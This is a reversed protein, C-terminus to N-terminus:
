LRVLRPTGAELVAALQGQFRPMVYRAFMEYSRHTAATNAWEHMLALIGGIGGSREQIEEIKAILEDPAGAIMTGSEVAEEVTTGTPGFALAARAPDRGDGFYARKPFSHRLDAIAEEKSEALHFTLVVKWEARSVPRGSQQAAEEVWSWTSKFREDDPGAVSLL